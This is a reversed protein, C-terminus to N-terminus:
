HLLKPTINKVLCNCGKFYEFNAFSFLLDGNVAHMKKRIDSTLSKSETHSKNSDTTSFKRLLWKFYM